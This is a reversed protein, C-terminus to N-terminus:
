SGDSLRNTGGEPLVDAATLETGQTGEDRVYLAWERGFKEELRRAANWRKIEDENQWACVCIEGNERIGSGSCFPCKQVPEFIRVDIGARECAKKREGLIQMYERILKSVRVHDEAAEADALAAEAEKKAKENGAFAPYTEALKIRAAAADRKRKSEMGKYYATVESKLLPIEEANGPMVEQARCFSFHASLRELTVPRETFINKKGGLTEVAYLEGRRESYDCASITVKGIEEEDTGYLAYVAGVGYNFYLRGDNGVIPQLGSSKKARSAAM